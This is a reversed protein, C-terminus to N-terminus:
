GTSEVQSSLWFWLPVCTTKQVCDAIKALQQQGRATSAQWELALAKWPALWWCAQEM